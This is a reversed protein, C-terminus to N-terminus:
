GPAPVRVTGEFPSYRYRELKGDHGFTLELSHITAPLGRQRPPRPQRPPYYFAWDIWAFTAFWAKGFREFFTPERPGVVGDASVVPRMPDNEPWHIEAYAYRWIVRGRPTAEREVPEGFRDAVEDIRTEGTELEGVWRPFPDAPLAQEEAESGDHACGVLALLAAAIVFVLRDRGSARIGIRRLGESVM